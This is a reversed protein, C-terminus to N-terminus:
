EEAGRAWSTEHIKKTFTEGNQRGDGKSIEGACFIGSIVQLIGKPNLANAKDFRGSGGVPDVDVMM